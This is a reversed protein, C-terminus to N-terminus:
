PRIAVVMGKLPLHVLIEAPRGVGALELADAYGVLQGIYTARVSYTGPRIGIITFYGDVDTVAGLTTGDVVINVGPLEDGNRADTVRGSIKGTQALAAPAVAFTSALLALRAYRLTM